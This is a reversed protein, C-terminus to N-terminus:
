YKIAFGMGDDIEDVEIVPVVDTVVAVAVDVDGAGVNADVDASGVFVM